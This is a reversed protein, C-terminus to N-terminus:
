TNNKIEKQINKYNTKEEPLERGKKKRKEKEKSIRIKKESREPQWWKLRM